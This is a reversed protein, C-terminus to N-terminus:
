KWDAPPFLPIEGTDADHASRVLDPSRYVAEEEGGLHRIRIREAVPTEWTGDDWHDTVPSAPRSPRSGGPRGGRPGPGSGPGDGFGDHGDGYGDDHGNGNGADPDLRDPDLEGELGDEDGDIGFIEACIARYTRDPEPVFHIERLAQEQGASELIFTGYGLLRGPISRGYSMDTVKALPMMSVKRTIFGYFKLLRKDTAVFWDHRWELVRYVTRALVVMWGLWAANAIFGATVPVNIDVWFAAVTAAVASAVPEAVKAWHQHVATVVREGDLLYRDLESHRRRAM